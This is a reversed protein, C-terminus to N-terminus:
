DENAVEHESSQTYYELSQEASLMVVVVATGWLRRSDLSRQFGWTQVKDWFICRIIM